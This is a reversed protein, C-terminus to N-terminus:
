RYVPRILRFLVWGQWGTLSILLRLSISQESGTISYLQADSKSMFKWRRRLNREREKYAEQLVCYTGMELLCSRRM